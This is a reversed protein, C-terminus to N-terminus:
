KYVTPFTWTFCSGTLKDIGAQGQRRSSGLYEGNWADGGRLLNQRHIM